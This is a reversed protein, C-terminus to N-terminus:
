NGLSVNEFTGSVASMVKGLQPSNFWAHFEYNGSIYGNSYSTINLYGGQKASTYNPLPSVYTSYINNVLKVQGYPSDLLQYRGVGNINLESVKIWKINDISSGSFTLINGNWSFDDVTQFDGYSGDSFIPRYNAKFDLIEEDDDPDLIDCSIINFSFISLLLIAIVYNVKYKRM